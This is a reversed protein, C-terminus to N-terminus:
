FRCPSLRYTAHNGVIITLSKHMNFQDMEKLQWGGQTKYIEISSADQCYFSQGLIARSRCPFEKAVELLETTYFSFSLFDLQV